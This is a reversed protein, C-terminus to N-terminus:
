IKISKVQRNSVFQVSGPKGCKVLNSVCTYCARLQPISRYKTHDKCIQAAQNLFQKSVKNSKIIIHGSPYSELHMWIYDGDSDDILKWNENANEGLIVEVDDIEFTKM